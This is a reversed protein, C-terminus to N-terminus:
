DYFIKYKYTFRLFQSNLVIGHSLDNLVHHGPHGYTNGYGFNCVNVIHHNAYDGINLSEYTPLDWNKNSGHHPVQFVHVYKIKELIPSPFSIPNNIPNISTDGMMLTGLLIKTSTHANYIRHWRFRHRTQHLGCLADEIVAVDELFKFNTPGHLLTLGYANINSIHKKYASHAKTRYNVIINKIEDYSIPANIDKGLISNLVNKLNTLTIEDITNAYLTFEWYKSIFFQLSNKYKKINDIGDIESIFQDSLTGRPSIDDDSQPENSNLKIDDPEDTIIFIESENETTDNLFVYPNEIFRYYDENSFSDNDGDDGMSILSYKRINEPFYPIVIRKVDFENLLRIVGSVHDYDLHSIFLIDICDKTTNDIKIKTHKFYDIESNLSQTNGAIFNSTGCDYVITWNKNREPSFITGGYFAGQGAKFFSFKSRLYKIM